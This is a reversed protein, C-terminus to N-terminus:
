MEMTISHRSTDEMLVSKRGTEMTLGFKKIDTMLSKRELKLVEMMIISPYFIVAIYTDFYM